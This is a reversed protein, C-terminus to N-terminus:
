PHGVQVDIWKQRVVGSRSSGERSLGIQKSMAPM